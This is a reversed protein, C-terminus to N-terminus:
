GRMLGRQRLADLSQRYGEATQQNQQEAWVLFAQIGESFKVRPSYDLLRNALTLEAYNHRIDGLRYAGTVNVESQSGFFEVIARAVELVSTRQGSGVNIAALGSTKTQLCRWTAEVVDQIYVFDRSERGDEFIEIPEGKRAQGAFIALIGTYPNVLSQGPGYVNQYRLAFASLKLSAGFLLTMQEQMQKTIGYFSSPQIPSSEDTPLPSCQSGCAPCTPEFHGKDMEEASRFAPYVVNHSPCLYKGEGYLARSSAVVLKCVKSSSNNVLYDMLNATGGMNVQEYRSVEYMSQGTGTEAALHLLAECGHLANHLTGSDRVDGEILEVHDAIDAAMSSSTHIQPNFNDYVRM